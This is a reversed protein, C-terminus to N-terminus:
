LIDAAITPQPVRATQAQLEAPEAKSYGKPTPSMDELSVVFPRREPFQRRKRARL